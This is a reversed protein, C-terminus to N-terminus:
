AKFVVEEGRSIREALDDLVSENIDLGHRGILTKLAQRTENVPKDRYRSRLEALEPNVAASVREAVENTLDRMVKDNFQIKM